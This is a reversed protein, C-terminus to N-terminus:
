PKYENLQEKVQEFTLSNLTSLAGRTSRSWELIGDLDRNVLMKIAEEKSRRAM